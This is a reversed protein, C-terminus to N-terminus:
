QILKTVAVFREIAQEPTELADTVVFSMRSILSFLKIVTSIGITEYDVMASKSPDVVHTTGDSQPVFSFMGEPGEHVTADFVVAHLANGAMVRLNTRVKAWTRFRERVQNVQENTVWEKRMRFTARRIRDKSDELHVTPALLGVNDVTINDYLTPFILCHVGYPTKFLFSDSGLSTNLRDLHGTFVIGDGANMEIEHGSKIWEDLLVIAKKDRSAARGVKQLRVRKAKTRKKTSSAKGSRSNVKDTLEGSGILDM